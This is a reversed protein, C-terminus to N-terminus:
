FTLSFKTSPYVRTFSYGFNEPTWNLGPLPLHELFLGVSAYRLSTLQEGAATNGSRDVAAQFQSRAFLSRCAITAIFINKLLFNKREQFVQLFM